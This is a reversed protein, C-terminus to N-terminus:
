STVGDKKDWTNSWLKCLSKFNESQIGSIVAIGDVGIKKLVPIHSLKIGGIAILQSSTLKRWQKLRNLGQPAIKTKKSETYFIPGFAIYSPLLSIAHALENLHHTSIGLRLQATNIKQLDAKKLDQQGLHVGFANLKIALDWYDNIFLQCQFKKALQIAYKIEAILKKRPYNKIRLQITKIGLSLLQELDAINNIIPYFGPPECAPFSSINQQQPYTLMPLRLRPQSFTQHCINKTTKSLNVASKINQYVYSKAYIVADVVTIGRALNATVAASFVCGTGRTKTQALRPFHLWYTNQGDCFFDEASNSNSHGGKIVVSSAGYKIFQQAAQEIANKTQLSKQLLIEAEPINPTFVTIFPLLQMLNAYATECLLSRGNSAHLIPDCVVPIHLAALMDYIIQCNEANGLMGIKLATPPLDSRLIDIQSKIFQVPLYEIQDIVSTNQATIATLISCGHVKFAKFTLLDAQIGAGSCSDSGAISWAIPTKM